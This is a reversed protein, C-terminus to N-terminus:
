STTSTAARSSRPRRRRKRDLRVPPPAVGTTAAWVKLAKGILAGASVDLDASVRDIWRIWAPTGFATVHRPPAPRNSASM